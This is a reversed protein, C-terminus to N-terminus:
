YLEFVAAAHADGMAFNNAAAAIADHADRDIALDGIAPQSVNRIGGDMRQVAAAEQDRAVREVIHAVVADLDPARRRAVVAGDHDVVVDLRDVVAGAPGPWYPLAM